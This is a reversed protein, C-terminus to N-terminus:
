CFKSSLVLKLMTTWYCIDNCIKKSLFFSMFRYAKWDSKMQIILSLPTLIYILIDVGIPGVNRRPRRMVFIGALSITSTVFFTVCSRYWHLNFFNHVNYFLTNTLQILCLFPKFFRIFPEIYTVRSREFMNQM